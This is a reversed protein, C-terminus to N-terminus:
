PESGVASVVVPKGSNHLRTENKSLPVACIGDLWPM